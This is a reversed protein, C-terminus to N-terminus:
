EFNRAQCLWQTSFLVKCRHGTEPNRLKLIYSVHSFESVTRHEIGEVDGHELTALIAEHPHTSSGATDLVPSTLDLVDRRCLDMSHDLQSRLICM